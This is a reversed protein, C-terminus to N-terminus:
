FRSVFIPKTGSCGGFAGYNGASNAQGCYTIVLNSFNNYTVTTSSMVGVSGSANSSAASGKVVYQIQNTGVKTCQVSIYAYKHPYGSLTGTTVSLLTTTTSGDGITCFGNTSSNLANAECSASLVLFFNSYGYKAMMTSINATVAAFGNVNGGGVEACIGDGTITGGSNTFDADVPVKYKPSNDKFLIPM